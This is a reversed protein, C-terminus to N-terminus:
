EIKPKPKLLEKIEENILIVDPDFLIVIVAQLSVISTTVIEIIESNREMCVDALLNVYALFYNWKTKNVAFFQPITMFDDKGFAIYM